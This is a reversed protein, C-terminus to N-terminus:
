NQAEPNPSQVTTIHLDFANGTLTTVTDESTNLCRVFVTSETAYEVEPGELCTGINILGDVLDCLRDINSQNGLRAPARGELSEEPFVGERLGFVAWKVPCDRNAFNCYPM